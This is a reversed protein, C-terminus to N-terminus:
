SNETIADDALPAPDIEFMAEALGNVAGLLYWNTTSLTGPSAVLSLRRQLVGLVPPKSIEDIAIQRLPLPAPQLPM